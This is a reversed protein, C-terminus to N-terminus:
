KCGCWVLDLQNNGAPYYHPGILVWGADMESGAAGVSGLPPCEQRLSRCFGVYGM